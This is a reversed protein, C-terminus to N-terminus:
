LSVLKCFGLKENESSLGSNHEVTVAELVQLKPKSGKKGAQALMLFLFLPTEVM